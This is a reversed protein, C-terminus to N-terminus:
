KFIYCTKSVTDIMQMMNKKIYKIQELIHQMTAKYIKCDSFPIFVLSKYSTRQVNYM